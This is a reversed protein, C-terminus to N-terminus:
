GSILKSAFNNIRHIVLQLIIYSPLGPSRLIIYFLKKKLNLTGTSGSQNKSSCAAFNQVITSGSKKFHYLIVREEFEPDRNRSGPRCRSGRTM